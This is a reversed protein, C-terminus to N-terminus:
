DILIFPMMHRECAIDPLGKKPPCTFTNLFIGRVTYIALLCLIMQHVAIAYVSRTTQKNYAYGM